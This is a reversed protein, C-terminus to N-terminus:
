PSEKLATVIQEIDYDLLELYSSARKHGGVLIPIVVLKAGIAESVYSATKRSRNPEVIVLKVGADKSQEVLAKIHTPSPEIGPKPEITGALELGFKALLYDFSRHYTIVKTGRHPALAASWADLKQRLRGAFTAANATYFAANAPDMKSLAKAIHDAVLIGNSPDLLYHPNGLLHVDGQSRDVPGTPVGLRQVGISADLHAPGHPLIQANRANELLPGLWGSELEMGGQIFLDAQNLTRVFSPKPDVFHPDESGNALSTIKVKDGGVEVAIAAMDPLTAVVHLKPAAADLNALGLWCFLICYPKM